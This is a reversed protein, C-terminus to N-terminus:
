FYKKNKYNHKQNSRDVEKCLKSENQNVTIRPELFVRLKIKLGAWKKRSFSLYKKYKMNEEKNTRNKEFKGMNNISTNSLKFLKRVRFHCQM